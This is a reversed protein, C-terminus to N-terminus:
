MDQPELFLSVSLATMIIGVNETIDIVQQYDEMVGPVDNVPNVAEKRELMVQHTEGRYIKPSLEFLFAKFIAHHYPSQNGRFIDLLSNLISLCEELLIQIPSGTAWHAQM